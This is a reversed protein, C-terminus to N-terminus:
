DDNKISKKSALIRFCLEYVENNTFQTVILAPFAVLLRLAMAMRRWVPPHPMTSLYKPTKQNISNTMHWNRPTSELYGAHEIITGEVPDHIACITGQQEFYNSLFNEFGDEGLKDGKPAKVLQHFAENVLLTQCLCPNASFGYSSKYLDASLPNSRMETSLPGNKSYVIQAWSAHKELEGALTNLHIPKNFKWDDELWFFYETSILPLAQLINNVYGKRQPSQIIVNPNVYKIVEKSVQGDIALIIKSFQYTCCQKFSQITNYLLHERGECTFVVLNIQINTSDTTNM